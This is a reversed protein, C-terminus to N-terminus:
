PVKGVTFNAKGLSQDNADLVECSWAGKAGPRARHRSWHRWSPSKGINLPVRSVVKGNVRWVHTSKQDAVKSDYVAYCVYQENDTGFSTGPQVPQRKEVGLAITLERLKMTDSGNLITADKDTVGSKPKEEPRGNEPVRVLARRTAPDDALAERDTTTLGNPLPQAEITPEDLEELAGGRKGAARSIAVRESERIKPGATEVSRRINAELEARVTREWEARTEAQREEWEAQHPACEEASPPAAPGCGFLAFSFAYILNAPCSSPKWM